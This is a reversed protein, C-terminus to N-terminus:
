LGETYSRLLKRVRRSATKTYLLYRIFFIDDPFVEPVQLLVSACSDVVHFGVFSLGNFCLIAVDDHLIRLPMDMNIVHCPMQHLADLGIATAHFYGGRLMAHINYLNSSLGHFYCESFRSFFQSSAVHADAFQRNRGSIDDLYISKTSPNLGCPRLSPVHMKVDAHHVFSPTAFYVGGGQLPPPAFRRLPRVDM